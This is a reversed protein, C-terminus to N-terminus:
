TKRHQALRLLSQKLKEDSSEAITNISDIVGTPLSKSSRLSKPESSVIHNLKSSNVLTSKPSVKMQVTVTGASIERRVHSLVNSQHMKFVTAIAASPTELYLISNKFNSVIINQAINDGLVTVLLNQIARFNSTQQQYNALNKSTKGHSLLDTLSKPSKM